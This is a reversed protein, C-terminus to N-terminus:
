EPTKEKRPTRVVGLADEHAKQIRKYQKFQEDPYEKNWAELMAKYYAAKEGRKETTPPSGLEDAMQLLRKQKDTKERKRKVNLEERIKIYIDYLNEQTLYDANLSINVIKTPATHAYYYSCKFIEPLVDSLILKLLDYHEIGTLFQIDHIMTFLKKLQPSHEIWASYSADKGKGEANKIVKYVSPITQLSVTGGVAKGDKILKQIEQVKSMLLAFKKQNKKTFFKNSEEEIWKVANDYDNPFPATECGFVDKRIKKVQQGIWSKYLMERTYFVPCSYLRPKAQNQIDDEYDYVIEAIMQVTDYTIHENMNVWDNIAQALKKPNKVYNDECIEILEDYNLRNKNKM